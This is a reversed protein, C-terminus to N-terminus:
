IKKASFQDGEVHFEECEKLSEGVKKDCIENPIRKEKIFELIRSIEGVANSKKSNLSKCAKGVEKLVKDHLKVKSARKEKIYQSIAAKSIGLMGGVKEYSLEYERVLCTALERRIAPIVYWVEIEQPLLYM